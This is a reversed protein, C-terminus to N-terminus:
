ILVNLNHVFAILDKVLCRTRRDKPWSGDARDPGAKATDALVIATAVRDSEIVTNGVAPEDALECARRDGGVLADGDGSGRISGAGVIAIGEVEAGIEEIIRM